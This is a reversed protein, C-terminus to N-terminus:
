WNSECNLSVPSGKMGCGFPWAISSPGSNTNHTFSAQTYPLAVYHAWATEGAFAILKTCQKLLVPAYRGADGRPRGEAPKSVAQGVLTSMHALQSPHEVHPYSFPTSLM